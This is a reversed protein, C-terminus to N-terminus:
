FNGHAHDSVSEETRRLSRFVEFAPAAKLEILDASDGFALDDVDDFMWGLLGRFWAQESWARGRHHIIARTVQNGVAICDGAHGIVGRLVDGAEFALDFEFAEDGALWGADLVIGRVGGVGDDDGVIPGTEALRSRM